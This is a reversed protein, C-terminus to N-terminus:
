CNETRFLRLLAVRVSPLRAGERRRAAMNNFGSILLFFFFLPLSPRRIRGFCITFPSRVATQRSSAHAVKAPQQTDARVSSGMCEAAQPGVGIPKRADVLFSIYVTSFLIRCLIGRLGTELPHEERSILEKERGFFLPAVFFLGRWVDRIIHSLHQQRLKM